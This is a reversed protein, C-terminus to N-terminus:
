RGDREKTGDVLESAPSFSGDPLKLAPNPRTSKSGGLSTYGDRYLKCYPVQFINLFSWIDHYEWELIPNIRMIQPWDKDTPSFYELTQCHPDSRRTGLFIGELLPFRSLLDALGEKISRRIIVLRFGYRQESEHMFDIVEKFTDKEMFCVVTLEFYDQGSSFQSQESAQCHLPQICHTSSQNRAKARESLVMHLLHLLVTCDKGGNFSLGLKKLSYKEIAENIVAISVEIKKLLDGSINLHRWDLLLSVSNGGLHNKTPTQHESFNELKTSFYDTQEESKRQQM